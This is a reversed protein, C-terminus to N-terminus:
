PFTIIRVSIACRVLCYNMPRTACCVTVTGADLGNRRLIKHKDLWAQLSVPESWCASILILIVQVVCQSLEAGSNIKASATPYDPARGSM